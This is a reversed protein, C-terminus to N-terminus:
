FFALYPSTRGRKVTVYAYESAFGAWELGRRLRDLGFGYGSAVPGPLVRAVAFGAAAFEGLWRRRSFAHFEELHSRYAGHPTPWLARERHRPMKPNNPAAPVEVRDSASSGGKARRARAGRRLLARTARLALYPYFGALQSAKWFANPVVHVATGEDSLIRHIGRLARAPDPLHELLNSSYVLDFEGEGFCSEVEEADCQRYEVGACATRGPPEAAFDTCVLARVHRALLRSQYGDGAGLELGKTFLSPPCRGFVRDFERTRATHLYEPWSPMM